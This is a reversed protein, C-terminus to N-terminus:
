KLTWREDRDSPNINILSGYRRTKAAYSKAVIRDTIDIKKRKNAVDQGLNHDVMISHM